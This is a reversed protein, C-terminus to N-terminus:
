EWPRIKRASSGVDFIRSFDMSLLIHEGVGYDHFPGNVRLSEHHFWVAMGAHVASWIIIACCSLVHFLAVFSRFSYVSRTVRLCLCSIFFKDRPFSLFPTIYHLTPEKVCDYFPTNNHAWFSIRSQISLDQSITQFHAIVFLRYDPSTPFLLIFSVLPLSFPFHLSKGCSPFKEAPSWPFLMDYSKLMSFQACIDVM